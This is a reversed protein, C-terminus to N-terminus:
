KLKRLLVGQMFCKDRLVASGSMQLESEVLGAKNVTNRDYRMWSGEDM